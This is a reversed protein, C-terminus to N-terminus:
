RPVVPPDADEREALPPVVVVMGELEAGPVTQLPPLDVHGPHHDTNQLEEPEGVFHLQRFLRLHVLHSDFRRSNPPAIRPSQLRAHLQSQLRTLNTAHCLITRRRSQPRFAEFRTPFFSRAVLAGREIKTNTPARKSHHVLYWHLKLPTLTRTLHAALRCFLCFLSSVFVKVDDCKLRRSCKRKKLTTTM